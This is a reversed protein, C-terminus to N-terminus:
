IAIRQESILIREVTKHSLGEDLLSLSRRILWDVHDWKEEDTDGTARLLDNDQQNWPHSFLIAIGQWNTLNDVKDDILVDGRVLHKIHSKYNIFIDKVFPFNEELWGIKYPISLTNAATTIVGLEAIGNRYWGHIVDYCGDLADGNSWLRPDNFYELMKASCGNDRCFHEMDFQTMQEISVKHDPYDQNHLRCWEGNMDYITADQDFWIRYKKTM